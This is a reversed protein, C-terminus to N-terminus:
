RKRKSRSGTSRASGSGTAGSSAFTKKKVEAQTDPWDPDLDMGEDRVAPAPLYHSMGDLVAAVYDALNMPRYIDGFLKVTMRDDAAKLAGFLLAQVARLKGARLDALIAEYSTNIGCVTQCYLIAQLVAANTWKLPRPRDFQADNEHPFFDTM